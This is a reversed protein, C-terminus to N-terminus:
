NIETPQCACRGTSTQTEFRLLKCYTAMRKVAWDESAFGAAFFLANQILHLDGFVNGYNPKAFEGRLKSSFLLLRAYALRAVDNSEWFRKFCKPKQRDIELRFEDDKKQRDPLEPMQEIEEIQNVSLLALLKKKEDAISWSSDFKGKDGDPQEFRRIGEIDMVLTAYEDLRSIVLDPTLPPLRGALVEQQTPRKPSQMGFMFVNQRVKPKRTKDEVLSKLSCIERDTTTGLIFAVNSNEPLRSLGFWDIHNDVVFRRDYKQIAELLNGQTSGKEKGYPTLFTIAHKAGNAPM